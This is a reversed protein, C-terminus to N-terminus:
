TVISFQGSPGDISFKWRNLLDRGILVCVGQLDVALVKIDKAVEAQDAGHFAMTVTYYEGTQTESGTATTHVTAAGLPRAGIKELIPRDVCTITAGTDVLAWCNVPFPTEQGARVLASRQESSLIITVPLIPGHETVPYTFTAM